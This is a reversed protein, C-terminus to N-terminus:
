PMDPTQTCGGIRNVMCPAYLMKIMYEGNSKITMINHTAHELESLWPKFKAYDQTHILSSM